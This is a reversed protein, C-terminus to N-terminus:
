KQFVLSTWFSDDDGGGDDDTYLYINALKPLMPCVTPLHENVRVSAWM